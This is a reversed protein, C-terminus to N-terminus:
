LLFKFCLFHTYMDNTSISLIFSVSVVIQIGYAKIVTRFSGNREKWYSVISFFIFMKEDFLDFRNYRERFGAFFSGSGYHDLRQFSYSPLCYHFPKDLNCYWDIKMLIVGGTKLIMKQQYPDSEVIDLITGLRFVPCIGNGVPDYNCRKLYSANLRM